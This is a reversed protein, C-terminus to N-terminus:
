MGAGNHPVVQWSAFRFTKAKLVDGIVAFVSVAAGGVLFRILSHIM